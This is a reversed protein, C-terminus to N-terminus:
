VYFDVCYSM